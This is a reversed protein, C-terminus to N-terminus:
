TVVLRAVVVGISLGVLVCSCQLGQLWRTGTAACYGKHFLSRRLKGESIMATLVGDLLGIGGFLCYISIASLAHHYNHDVGWAIMFAAVSVVMLM